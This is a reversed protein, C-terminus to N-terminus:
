VAVDIVIAIDVDGLAFDPSSNPSPYTGAAVFPGYPPIPDCHSSRWHETHAVNKGSDGYATPPEGTVARRAM